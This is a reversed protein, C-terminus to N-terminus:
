GLDNGKEGKEPHKTNTGKTMFLPMATFIGTSPLDFDGIVSETAKLCTDILAETEVVTFITFNGRESLNSQGFAYRMAIHQQSGKHRHLGTSELITAGPLGAKKWANLVADLKDPNDIVCIIMFM